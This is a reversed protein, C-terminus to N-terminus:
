NVEKGSIYHKTIFPQRGKYRLCWYAPCVWCHAEDGYAGGAWLAKKIARHLKHHHYWNM